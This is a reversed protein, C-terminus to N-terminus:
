DDEGVLKSALDDDLTTFTTDIAGYAQGLADISKVIQGRRIAWGDDFEAMAAAVEGHGYADDSLCASANRGNNFDSAARLLNARLDRLEPLDIQLVPTTGASGLEKSLERDANEFGEAATGLFSAYSGLASVSKGAETVFAGVRDRFAESAEDTTFGDEVLGDVLARVQALQAAFTSAERRLGRAVDRVREYSVDVSGSGM